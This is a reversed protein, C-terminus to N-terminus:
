EGESGVGSEGASGEVSSPFEPATEPTSGTVPTLAPAATASGRRSAGKSPRKKAAKGAKKAPSRKASSKKAAKKTSKKAAKATTKKAAKKASKKAASGGRKSAASKKASGKGARKRSGKSTKSSKKAPMVRTEKQIQKSERWGVLNAGDQGRLLVCKERQTARVVATYRVIAISREGAAPRFRNRYVM